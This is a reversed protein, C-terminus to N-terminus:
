FVLEYGVNLTIMLLSILIVFLFITKPDLAIDESEADYYTTLGASSMLGGAANKKDDAM